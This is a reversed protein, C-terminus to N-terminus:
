LLPGRADAFCRRAEKCALARPQHEDIQIPGFEFLQNNIELLGPGATRSIAPSTELGETQRETM